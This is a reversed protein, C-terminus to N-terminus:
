HTRRPPGGMMADYMREGLQERMEMQQEYTPREDDYAGDIAKSALDAYGAVQLYHVLTVKPADYPSDFDHFEGREAQAILAERHASPPKVKLDNVLDVRTNGM